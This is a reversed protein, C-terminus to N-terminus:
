DCKNHLKHSQGTFMRHPRVLAADFISVVRLCALFKKSCIVAYLDRIMKNKKKDRHWLICQKLYELMYPQNVIIPVAAETVRDHRAGSCVRELHMLLARPYKYEM